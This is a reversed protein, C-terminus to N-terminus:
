LYYLMLLVIVINWYWKYIGAVVSASQEDCGAYIRQPSLTFNYLTCPNPNDDTFKYVNSESINVPTSIANSNTISLILTTNEYAVPDINWSLFISKPTTSFVKFDSVVTPNGALFVYKLNIWDSCM